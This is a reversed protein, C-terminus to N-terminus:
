AGAGADGPQPGDDQEFQKWGGTHRRVLGLLAEVHAADANPAPIYEMREGGAALFLHRSTAAIEELTELCDVAFGPCLVQVHRVGRAPLQRLTDDTYPM